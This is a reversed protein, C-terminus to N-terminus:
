RWLAIALRCAVFSTRKGPWVFRLKLISHSFRAKKTLSFLFDAGYKNEARSSRRDQNKAPSITANNWLLCRRADSMNSHSACPRFASRKAPAYVGTHAIKLQEVYFNPGM